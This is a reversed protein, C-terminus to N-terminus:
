WARVPKFRSYCHRTLKGVNDFCEQILFTGLEETKLTTDLAEQFTKYVGLIGRNKVAVFKQGYTKNLEIMNEVFYEFDQKQTDM